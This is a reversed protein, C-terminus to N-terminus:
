KKGKNLLNEAGKIHLEKLTVGGQEWKKYADTKMNLIKAAEEQTFGSEHM